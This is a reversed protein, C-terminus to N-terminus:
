GGFQQVLSMNDATQGGRAGQGQLAAKINMLETRFATDSMPYSLNTVAKELMKTEQDTITGSGKLKERENLALKAKIQEVLAQTDRAQTSYVTGLRVSGTLNNTDTNLVRDVLNVIQDKEAQAAPNVGQGFTGPYLKEFAGQNKILYEYEMQNSPIGTAMFEPSLSNGSEQEIALKQSDSNFKIGSYWDEIGAVADQYDALAQETAFKHEMTGQKLSGDIERLVQQLKVREGQVSQNATQEAAFVQDDIDALKNSKDKAIQNTLRNFDSDINENAQKFSGEGFSDITNLASFRRQADGQTERRAQAATRQQEGAYDEVNSKNREGQARTRELAALTGKEFENFANTADGKMGQLQGQQLDYMGQRLENGAKLANGAAGIKTDATGRQGKLFTDMLTLRPDVPKPPPPSPPGLKQDAVSITPLKPYNTPNSAYQTTMGSGMIPKSQNVSTPAASYNVKPKPAQPLPTSFMSQMTQQPTKPKWLNTNAAPASSYNQSSTYNTSTIQPEKKKFINFM